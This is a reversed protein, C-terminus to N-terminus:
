YFLRYFRTGTPPSIILTKNTGDTQVANTVNIWNGSGLGNTNQQLAFNTAVSPWSVAVTNTATRRIALTPLTPISFLYATGSNVGGTDDHPAGIIAHETGLASLGVGFHDFLAPAPNAITHLLTGHISFVYAAGANTAGADDGPAAIVLRDNGLVDVRTGFNDGIAPAPNTILTLLTGNTNFIYVAGADEAGADGLPAGVAVRDAGITAVAYGFYDFETPTPNTITTLLTGNTNFLHVTGFGFGASGILVRNDGLAALSYGFRDFIDPDPNEFTTILTGNTSLLYAIGMQEIEPDSTFDVAGVLIGNTGLTAVSSGFKDAGSALPNTITTLLTGNTNYVYVTGVYIFPPGDNYPAGIVIRDSGLVAMADGFGDGNDFSFLRTYAPNPNNITKLVTGNTHVLYVAGGNTAANDDYSASIFVRDSGLSAIASSFADGVGPTPNTMTRLLLPSQAQAMLPAVVCSIVIFLRRLSPLPLLVIKM